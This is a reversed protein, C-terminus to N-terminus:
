KSFFPDFTPSGEGDQALGTKPTMEIGANNKPGLLQKASDNFKIRAEEEEKTEEINKSM